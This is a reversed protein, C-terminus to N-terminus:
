LKFKAVLKKIDEAQKALADSSAAIEETSAAQEETAASVSQTQEAIEKNVTEIQKVSGVVRKNGDDIEKIAVLAHQIQGSVQEVLNAIEHFSTGTHNVIETGRHAEQTGKNMTVVAENTEEQVESILTGIQKAAEESQEALKRVEEAVVAFGRGQEGARAAEIAANLALLNTQAAIGAITDVIKGIEQSREGLKTIITASDSVTTEIHNMQEIVQGIIQGGNQAAGFAKTSTEAISESNVSLTHSHSSMNEVDVLTNEMAAVQKDAGMAVDNISQAVQQVTQASEQANTTLQQSSAAVQQAVKQLTTVMTRLYQNMKMYCQGMHGLEDNSQVQINQVSLDGEAIHEMANNLERIPNVLKRALYLALVIVIILLVAATIFSVMQLTSLRALIEKEPAIVSISWKSGEIPAYAAYCNEGDKTYELVGKEGSVMNQMLAKLTPDAKDDTLPNLKMVMDPNPHIIIEGDGKAVTAFGTEAVKVRAIEQSLHDLMVTGGLVGIVQNDKKIPAVISVVLKGDAKSVIPDTVLAKGTSMVEKFYDRDAINTKAGTTHYSQGNSEVLWFRSYIPNRKVEAQLYKLVSEKDNNIIYPQSAWIAMEDKRWNLWTTISEAHVEAQSIMSEKAAEQLANKANLYNLCGLVILAIALISIAVLSIKTEISRIKTNSIM